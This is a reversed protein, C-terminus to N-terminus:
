MAQSIKLCINHLEKNRKARTLSDLPKNPDNAAQYNVIETKDYFSTSIAIWVITLGDKESAHLLPPLEHEAIFDSALFNESVLLVAIKASDLAKKIEEKWKAGARIM